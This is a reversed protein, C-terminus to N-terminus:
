SVKALLKGTLKIPLGTISDKTGRIKLVHQSIIPTDLSFGGACALISEEAVIKKILENSIPKFWITATSIGASHKKNKTNTVVIGTITQAPHKAYMALFKKAEKKDKPKELIKNNCIVVQDATILVSPQKIKPLLANAKAYALNIVLKKPDKNRIRKEDINPDMVSFKYGMRTLIQKRGLSKSGLILNKLKSIPHQFFPKIKPQKKNM